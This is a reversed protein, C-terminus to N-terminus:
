DVLHQFAEALANAGDKGFMIEDLRRGEEATGRARVALEVEFDKLLPDYIDQVHPSAYNDGAETEYAKVIARSLLLADLMAQNVGEGFPLMLHAADGILTVGPKHEWTNGVTHMYLGRIDLKATPDEAAEEDCGATVLEKIPTGWSSLLGGSELLKEKAVAPTQGAFGATTAFDASSLTLFIYIRASDVPGRQSLVGHRDGLAMFTGPGLLEALQPYKHTVHKITLTIIQKGAYYPKEGTVLNRVRSWAGDAGVVLDFTQKGRPGFNLETEAHGGTISCTASLLKYGWKITGPPLKNREYLVSGNKDTIKTAEACDGTLPAFDEFLGCEKIADLGSGEHLDLMGSPKAFEEETPKQRLEFIAAPIGHNHLLLGLTLGAPGGGVIAIRSSM